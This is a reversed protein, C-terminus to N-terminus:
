LVLVESFAPSAADRDSLWARRAATKADEFPRTWVLQDTHGSTLLWPTHTL